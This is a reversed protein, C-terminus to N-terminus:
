ALALRVGFPGRTRDKSIVSIVAILVNPRLRSVLRCRRSIWFLLLSMFSAREVMTAAVTEAAAASAAVPM